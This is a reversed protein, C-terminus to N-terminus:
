QSHSLDQYWRLVAGFSLINKISILPQLLHFSYKMIHSFSVISLHWHGYVHFCLMSVHQCWRSRECQLPLTSYNQYLSYPGGTELIIGEQDEWFTKGFGVWIVWHYPIQRVLLFHPNMGQSIHNWQRPQSSGGSCSIAIWKLIRAQSIGHVSSGPPSYDTPNCLRCLKLVLGGGCGLLTLVCPHLNYLM